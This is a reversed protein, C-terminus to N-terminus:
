NLIEDLLKDINEFDEYVDFESAEDATLVGKDALYYSMLKGDAMKTKLCRYVIYVMDERTFNESETLRNAVESNFLQYTVADDLSNYLETDEYGMLRLLLTVFQYADITADPSFTDEGTGYTIKNDFCYMVYEFSWRDRQVDTFKEEFDYNKLNDEEGLLRVLVTVAEERTLTRELEYGKDTGKLLGLEYLIDAYETDTKAMAVSHVSILLALVLVIIKSFARM